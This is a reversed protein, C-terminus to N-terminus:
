ETNITFYITTGKDVESDAWIDGYHRKIIIQTTSLGIGSGEFDSDSHLRQFKNFIIEADEKEFGVGNDRVFYIIESDKQVIGVEIIAKECKKTYKWSNGIINTVVILIMSEDALIKIDDKIILEVNRNPESKQFGECVSKVLNSFNIEKINIECNKVKSLSLLSKILERMRIISKEMSYLIEKFDKNLVENWEIKILSIYEKILALPTNLDHSVRYSFAELELNANKLKETREEVKQELEDKTEWFLVVFISTVLAIYGYGSLWSFPVLRLIYLLMDHTSCGFVVLFSFLLPIAHKNKNKFVSILLLILDFVMIPAIVAKMMFGFVYYVEVISTKSIVIISLFLGFLFIGLELCRKLILCKKKNLIKIFEIIFMTLFTLSLLFAVRSHQDLILAEVNISSFVMNVVTTGNFFCMLAFFLYKWQWTKRKTFFNFVFYLGILFSILLVGYAGIHIKVLNRWFAWQSVNVYSSISIKDIPMDWEKKSYIVIALNNAKEGYFLLDNPLYVNCVEHIQSNYYEKYIGKKFIIKGNLYICYPHTTPGIYLAMDKDILDKNLYFESRLTYMINIYEKESKLQSGELHKFDHDSINVNIYKTENDKKYESELIFFKLILEKEENNLIQLADQCFSTKPFCLLFITLFLLFISIKLKQM